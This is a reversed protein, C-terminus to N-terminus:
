SVPSLQESGHVVTLSWRGAGEWVVGSTLWVVRNKERDWASRVFYLHFTIGASCGVRAFICPFGPAAAARRCVRPEGRAPPPPTYAPLQRPSRCSSCDLVGLSSPALTELDLLLTPILEGLRVEASPHKFTDLFLLEM